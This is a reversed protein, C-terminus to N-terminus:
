EGHGETIIIRTRDFRPPAGRHKLVIIRESIRTVRAVREAPTLRLTERVRERIVEQEDRPEDYFKIQSRDM